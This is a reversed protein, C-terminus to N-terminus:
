AQEVPQVVETRIGLKEGASGAFALAEERQDFATFMTSGSGSVRVPRGALDAARSQLEALVPCVEFAPAELMNFTGNMWDVANSSGVPVVPRLTREGARWARYVAATAVSLGPLLLVIWGRWPLRICEVQEGRGGIIASGRQLFLPVDSGLQAALEALEDQTWNLGWWRNLALLTAAANSSGGGLGGGAPIRKSLRCSIAAV